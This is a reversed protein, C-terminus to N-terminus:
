RKMRETAQTISEAQSDKIMVIMKPKMYQEDQKNIYKLNIKGMRTAIFISIKWEFYPQTTSPYTVRFTPPRKTAFKFRTENQIQAPM